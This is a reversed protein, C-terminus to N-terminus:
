LNCELQSYKKNKKYKINKFRIDQGVQADTRSMVILPGCIESKSVRRYELLGSLNMSHFIEIVDYRNWSPIEGQILAKNEIKVKFREM